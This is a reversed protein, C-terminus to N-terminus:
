GVNQLWTDRIESASWDSPESASERVRDPADPGHPFSDDHVTSNIRNELCWVFDTVDDRVTGDARCTEFVRTVYSVPYSTSDDGDSASDILDNLLAAVYGEIEAADRGSPVPYNVSEWRSANNLAASAAYNAFGEAFACDYSSPKSIRHGICSSSTTIGGLAKHHLGHAFEHAATWKDNYYNYDFTISDGSKWYFTSDEDTFLMRWKIASRYQGFYREMKPIVENLNRWPIFLYSNSNITRTAGCDNNYAETGGIVYRGKTESTAPVYVSAVIYEYADPCRTTVTGDSPVSVRVTLVVEDAQDLYNIRMEADKANKRRRSEYYVAHFSIEDDSDANAGDPSSSSRPAQRFPGEGTIVGEPMVDPDLFYTVLGGGDMVLLWRQLDVTNLVFPDKDDLARATAMVAVQYYGKEPLAIEVSQKWMEGANMAPLDWSAVAPIEKGVPYSPYKGPGAHKMAAMTPLMVHVEGGTLKENAVGELQLTITENPVLEGDFDLTISLRHRFPEATGASADHRHGDANAFASSLEQEGVDPSAGDVALPDYDTCTAVMFSVLIAVPYLKGNTSM